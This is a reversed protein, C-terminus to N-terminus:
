NYVCYFRNQITKITQFLQCLKFRHDLITHITQNFVCLLIHSIDCLLYIIGYLRRSLLLLLMYLCSM